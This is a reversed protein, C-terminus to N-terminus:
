VELRLLKLNEQRLNNFSNPVRPPESFDPGCDKGSIEEDAEVRIQTAPSTNIARDAYRTNQRGILSRRWRRDADNFREQAVDIVLAVTLEAPIQNCPLPDSNYVPREHTKHTLHQTHIGPAARPDQQFDHAAFDDSQQLSIRQFGCGLASGERVQADPSFKTKVRHATAHFFQSFHGKAFHLFTESFAFPRRTLRAPGYATGKKIRGNCRHM